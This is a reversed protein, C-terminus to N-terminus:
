PRDKKRLAADRAPEAGSIEHTETNRSVVLWQRCGHLHHWFERFAGRPNEREYVYALWKAPDPDAIAPRERGADGFCTFESSDRPGCYPCPIRM